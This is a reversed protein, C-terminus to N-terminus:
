GRFRKQLTPTWSKHMMTFSWGRREADVLSQDLQDGHFTKVYKDPKDAPVHHAFFAPHAARLTDMLEPYSHKSSNAWFLKDDPARGDFGWLRVDKTLTCALPLLAINLINGLNPLEFRELLSTSISKHSGRPM